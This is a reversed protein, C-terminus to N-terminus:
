NIIKRVLVSCGGKKYCISDFYQSAMFIGRGNLMEIREIIEQDTMNLYKDYDFGCGEDTINVAIEDRMELLDVQIKAKCNEERSKVESEFKGSNLLEAKDKEGVKLNGHVHANLLFEKLYTAFKIPETKPMIKEIRHVVWMIAQDLEAIKSPITISGLNGAYPNNHDKVHGNLARRNIANKLVEIFATEEIPKVIFDQVGLKLLKIAKEVDDIVTFVVFPILRNKYNIEALDCGSCRPMLLDSAIVDISVKKDSYISAAVQGDEAELVNFGNKLLVGAIYRRLARDDEVLLVTQKSGSIM